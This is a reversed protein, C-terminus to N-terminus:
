QDFGVRHSNVGGFCMAMWALGYLLVVIGFVLSIYKLIAAVILGYFFVCSFLTLLSLWLFSLEDYVDCVPNCRVYLPFCVASSECDTSPPCTV